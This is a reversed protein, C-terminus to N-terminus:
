MSLPKCSDMQQDGTLGSKDPLSVDFRTGEGVRSEVEITGGLRTLIEKTVYLGLGTGQNPTKTSFFPEFIRDIDTKPIGAGNDIVSLLIGDSAKRTMINILSRSESAQIANTLLNILIQRIQNPDSWLAPVTPDIDTKIIIEKRGAEKNVLSVAEQVIDALDVECIITDIQRASGLLQHTIKKAREVATLIKNLARDLKEKHPVETLEEKSLLLKVVAAAENIIALPNNIEHAVGAALTGLAALRETAILQQEMKEKYQENKREAEEQKIKQYAQGIKVMLHDFEIPKGLYDFAGAKIGQVGDAANTQGTLLITEIKQYNSQVAKLTEIGDMGPMRVDMVIVDVSNKTLFDLCSQGDAVGWVAAVKKGLRRALAERFGKEDDVLLLRVESISELVV